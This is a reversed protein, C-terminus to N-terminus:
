EVKFTFTGNYQEPSRFIKFEETFGKENEVDTSTQTVFQTTFGNILFTPTGTIRSPYCYYIFALNTRTLTKQSQTFVDTGSFSSSMFNNNDGIEDLDAIESATITSSSLFGFFKVNRFYINRQLQKTVGNFTATLTFIYRAYSGFSLTSPYNLATSTVSAGNNTMTLPFGGNNTSPSNSVSTGSLAITPAQSFNSSLNNYTATFAISSRYAADAGMIERKQTASIGFFKFTSIGFNLDTGDETLIFKSGNFKIIQNVSPNTSLDFINSLTTSGDSIELDNFNSTGSGGSGGGSGGTIVNTLDSLVFSLISKEPYKIPLSIQDINVESSNKQTNGDAVLEIPNSGDPFSLLLRQNNYILANVNSSLNIKSTNTNSNIAQSIVGLSNKLINNKINLLNNMSLNDVFDVQRIIQGPTQGINVPELNTIVRDSEASLLYWEGSMIESQAKFTGGLFQYYENTGDSMPYKIIKLPSINASQISAQLIKLPETQLELFEKTLLKTLNLPASPSPNGREMGPTMSKHVDVSGSTDLFIISHLMNGTFQGLTVDGLDFNEFAKNTTQTSTFIQGGSNNTELNNQIQSITIGDSILTNVSDTTPDNITDYLPTTIAASQPSTDLSQFYDITMSVVEFSVDGTIDPEEVKASFNINTKTTITGAVTNEFAFGVGGGFNYSNPNGQVNGVCFATSDNLPSLFNQANYGRVITLNTESQSWNLSFNNTAVEQLYRNNTGDSLKVRLVLTATYSNSTIEYPQSGVDSSFTFDSKLVTRTHISSFNMQLLGSSTNLSGYTSSSSTQLNEGQPINVSTFGNIFTATVSELAPEFTFTSGGLIHNNNDDSITLLTNVTTNNPNDNKNLYENSKIVGNTVGDLSNPQIINYYGDSLFGVANFTKLIGNFVDSNKYEFPRNSLDIVEVNETIENFKSENAFAGKIMFYTNFPDNTSSYDGPRWWDISNRLWKRNHPNPKNNTASTSSINMIDNFDLIVDKIKQIQMKETTGSFKDPKRKNYYGYSDTAIIKYIYPYPRNEFTDFSPQIWGYWWLNADNVSNKYIRLFHYEYGNELIQKVWLKDANNEIFIFLNCQSGLFVRKRTEGEGNWTIEFGENALTISSSSGNWNKKYIEIHWTTGKEGEITTDKFKNYDAM